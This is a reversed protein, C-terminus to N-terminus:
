TTFFHDRRDGEMKTELDTMSHDQLVSGKKIETTQNLHHLNLVDM